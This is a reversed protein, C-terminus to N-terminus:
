PLEAPRPPPGSSIRVLLALIIFNSVLSSGGYSVFPLTIGTLPILRTVGGVIVFVQIALLASLGTALLKGFDDRSVIAIRLGRAVIAVYMLLIAATGFLGLEEGTEAFIFDTAAAPILQSQGKGLGVGSNGGSAMAFEGQALQYGNGNVVKPDLAHVWVQVREQATPFAKYAIFAGTFFLLAAVILYMARSTAVWLMMTFIGFYLISAGLDKELFLMALSIAWALVLPGLYRARPINLPGLKHTATRLLERNRDLYGALFIVILVKGLESPQFQIPGLAIWLREENVARGIGPLIPLLLLAVGVLGITYTFGELMKHDRVILITAAFALLGVGMWISQETALGGDIGFIVSFGLGSLTACLPFLVPDANPALARILLHGALFGASVLLAYSGFYSPLHGTKNLGTQAYALLVIALAFLTLAASSWGSRRTETAQM